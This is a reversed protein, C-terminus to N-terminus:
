MKSRFDSPKKTGVLWHLRCDCRFANGKFMLSKLNELPWRFADEDLTVFQNNNLELEKLNPMNAFMNPPFSSLKNDISIFISILLISKVFTECSLGTGNLSTILDSARIEETDRGWLEFPVWLSMIRSNAFRIKEFFTNKFLKSPIYLLTSDVIVLSFMKMSDTAKIPAILEDASMMNSCMMMPGDGLDKCICAPAIGEQPPCCNIVSSLVMSLFITSLIFSM